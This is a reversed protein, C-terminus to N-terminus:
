AGADKRGYTRVRARRLTFVAIGAWVINVFVSPYAGHYGSNLIFLLSGAINLLQFTRSQGHWRGASVQLYAFLLFSAGLWGLVDIILTTSM